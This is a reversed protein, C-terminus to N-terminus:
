KDAPATTLDTELQSLAGQLAQADVGLKQILATQAVVEDHLKAVEAELQKTPDVPVPPPFAQTALTVRRWALSGPSGLHEFSWVSIGTVGQAKVRACFDQVDTAVADYGPADMYAPFIPEGGLGYQALDAYFTDVTQQPTWKLLTWYMQPLMACGGEVSFQYYPLKVHYRIAPLPAYALPLTPFTQRLLTIFNTADAAANPSGEWEAEVDAVHGDPQIYTIAQVVANEEDIAGTYDYGWSFFKLGAARCKERLVKCANWDNFGHNGDQVKVILGAAGVARTQAVIADLDGGLCNSLSWVWLLVGSFGEFM